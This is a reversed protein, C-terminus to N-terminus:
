IVICKVNLQMKTSQHTRSTSQVRYKLEVAVLIAANKHIVYYNITKNELASIFPVCVASVSIECGTFIFTWNMFSNVKLCPINIGPIKGPLSDYNCFYRAWGWGDMVSVAPMEGDPVAKWLSSTSLHVCLFACVFVCLCVWLFICLFDSTNNWPGLASLLGWFYEM